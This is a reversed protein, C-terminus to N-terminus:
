SFVPSISLTFVRLGWDAQFAAVSNVGANHRIVGYPYHDTPFRQVIEGTTSDVVAFRDGVNKAVYVFKGNPAVALGAPYSTGTGDATKAKPWNSNIRLRRQAMRGRM